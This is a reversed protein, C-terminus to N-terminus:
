VWNLAFLEACRLKIHLAVPDGERVGIDTEGKWSVIQSMKDGHLPDCDDVSRGAVGALGVRIEGGRPTRFNLRLTRGGPISPITFFEGEGDATVACLRDEPWWAWGVKWADWVAQWRPYKHPYETGIYPVAIRGNGFPALDKGACIFESDWEGPEGPEIVPGGPVQNWAIGDASSYLRIESRETFRHWVTPFMLHYESLGPYESRANLYFDFDPPDDLRPWIVPEIWQLESLTDAEARGIWRREERFMRTYLVYKQLASDWYITTDTDSAHMMIPEPNPTWHIGDPSTCYFLCYRDGNMIRSQQYRERRVAYERFLREAIEESPWACYVFKYRESEPANPDIFCTTGDFLHQGPINIECRKPDSWNFGDSSEVGCIAVSSPNQLDSVAGTALRAIGNIEMYWSRYVGSDYITRGWGKWNSYPETKQAPQAALRIGHPVRVPAAHMEVPDGPPNGMAFKEGDPSVWDLFGCSIHRWDLFLMKKCPDVSGAM